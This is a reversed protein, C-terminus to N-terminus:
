VFFPVCPINLPFSPPELPSRPSGLQWLLRHRGCGHPHVEASGVKGGVLSHDEQPALLALRHGREERLPAHGICSQHELWLAGTGVVEDLQEPAPAVPEGAELRCTPAM